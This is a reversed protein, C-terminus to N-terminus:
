IEGFRGDMQLDIINWIACNVRDSEFIDDENYTATVKFKKFLFSFLIVCFYVVTKFILLM